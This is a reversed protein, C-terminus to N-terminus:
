GPEVAVPCVANVNRRVLSPEGRAHQVVDRIETVVEIESVVQDSLREAVPGAVRGAVRAAIEWCRKDADGNRIAARLEGAVVLPDDSSGITQLGLGVQHGTETIGRAVVFTVENPRDSSYMPYTSLPYDDSDVIVPWVLIAVAGVMVAIRIRRGNAM